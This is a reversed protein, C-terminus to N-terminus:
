VQITKPVRNERKKGISILTMSARNKPLQHQFLTIMFSILSTRSLHLILTHILNVFVLRLVIQQYAEKSKM